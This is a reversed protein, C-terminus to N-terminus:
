PNSRPVCSMPAGSGSCGPWWMSRNASWFRACSNGTRGARATRRSPMKALLADIEAREAPPLSDYDRLLKWRLGKLDPVQKQEMRRTADLARSAQAIVHFKDFTIQANPQHTQCGKIFAQSMDISVSEVATIM